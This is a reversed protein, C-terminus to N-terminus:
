SMKIMMRNNTNLGSVLLGSMLSLESSSFGAFTLSDLLFYTIENLTHLVFTKTKATNVNFIIIIIFINIIIIIILRSM